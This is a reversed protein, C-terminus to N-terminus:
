RRFPSKKTAAPKPEVKEEVDFPLDDNFDKTGEVESKPEVGEEDDNVALQTYKSEDFFAGGKAEYPVLETVIVRNLRHGKGNRTDFTEVSVVVSSMNGIDKTPEIGEVFFVKPPGMQELKNGIMQSVRRKFQVYDGMEDTYTKLRLGTKKYKEWSEPDLYFNAKYNDFKPDPSFLGGYASNAWAIKGTFDFYQTKSAM